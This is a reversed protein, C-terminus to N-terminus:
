VAACGLWRMRHSLAVAARAHVHGPGRRRRTRVCHVCRGLGTLFERMGACYTTKGAGPPGVVIQGSAAYSSMTRDCAM